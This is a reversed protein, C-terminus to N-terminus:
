ETESYTISEIIRVVEEWGVSATCTIHYIFDGDTWLAALTNNKETRVVKKDAAVVETAENDETDLFGTGKVNATCYISLSENERKFDYTVYDANVNNKYVSEFGDPIYGITVKRADTDDEKNDVTLRAFGDFIEIIFGKIEERAAFVSFAMLGVILTAAVIVTIMKKLSLTNDRQCAIDSAAKDLKKYFEDSPSPLLELQRLNEEDERLLLLTLAEKIKEKYQKSM